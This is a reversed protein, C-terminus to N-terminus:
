ASGARVLRFMTRGVPSTRALRRLFRRADYGLRCDNLLVARAEAHLGLDLLQRAYELLLFNAYRRSSEALAPPVGGDRILASLREAFLPRMAKGRGGLTSSGVDNYTASLRADYVFSGRFALRCWTDIDEGASVGNPFLGAALLEDKRAMVSSASVPYGGNSLAFSFYDDVIQASLKPDIFPRGERSQLRLNSFAAIARTGEVAHLLGALHDHSWLDDADLLAIWTGEAAEIGRNRAASVGANDQEILRLSSLDARKVVEASGDTSGDDVVVIEFSADTQSAVSSLAQLIFGAKNYLPIVVSIRPKQRTM